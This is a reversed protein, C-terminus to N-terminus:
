LLFSIVGSAATNIYTLRKMCLGKGKLILIVCRFKLGIRFKREDLLFPENKM